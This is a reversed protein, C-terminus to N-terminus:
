QRVRCVVSAGSRLVELDPHVFQQLRDKMSEKFVDTKPYKNAEVRPRINHKRKRQKTAPPPAGAAEQDSSEPPPDSEELEEANPEAESAADEHDKQL